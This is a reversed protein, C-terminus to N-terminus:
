NHASTFVHSYEFMSATMTISSFVALIYWRKWDSRTEVQVEHDTTAKESNSNPYIEGSDHIRHLEPQSSDGGDLGSELGSCGSETLTGVEDASILTSQRAHPQHMKSTSTQINTEPNYSPQNGHNDYSLSDQEVLIDQDSM